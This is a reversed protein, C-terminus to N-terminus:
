ASGVDDPVEGFTKLISADEFEGLEPSGRRSFAVAGANAEDRSMAYARRMAAAADPCEVAQGPILGEETRAFPLAVYYIMVAELMLFM